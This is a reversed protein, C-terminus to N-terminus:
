CRLYTRREEMRALRSQELQGVNGLTNREGCVQCTCHICKWAVHGRLHKTGDGRDSTLALVGVGSRCLPARALIAITSACSSSPAGRRIMHTSGKFNVVSKFMLTTQPTGSKSKPYSTFVTPEWKIHFICVGCRTFLPLRESFFYSQSGSENGTSGGMPIQWVEAAWPSAWSSM